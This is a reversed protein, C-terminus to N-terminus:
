TGCVLYGQPLLQSQKCTTQVTGQMTQVVPCDPGQEGPVDCMIINPWDCQAQCSLTSYYSGNQLFERAACCVM